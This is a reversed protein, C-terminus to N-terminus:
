KKSESKQKRESREQLKRKVFRIFQPIGLQIAQLLIKGLDIFFTKLSQGLKRFFERM